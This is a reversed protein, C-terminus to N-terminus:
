SSGSISLEGIQEEGLLLLNRSRDVEAITESVLHSPILGNKLKQEIALVLFWQKAVNELRSIYSPVDEPNAIIIEVNDGHINNDADIMSMFHRITKIKSLIRHIIDYASRERSNMTSTNM